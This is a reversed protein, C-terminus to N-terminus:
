ESPARLSQIVSDIKPVMRLYGMSGRVILTDLQDLSTSTANVALEEEKLYKSAMAGSLAKERLDRDLDQLQKQSLELEKNLKMRKGGMNKFVKTFVNFDSMLVGLDKGIYEGKDKYEQSIKTLRSSIDAKRMPLSDPHLRELRAKDNEVQELLDSIKKREDSFDTCASLFLVLVLIITSRM